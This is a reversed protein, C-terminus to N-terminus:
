LAHPFNGTNGFRDHFVAHPRDSFDGSSALAHMPKRRDPTVVFDIRSKDIGQERLLHRGCRISFEAGFTPSRKLSRLLRGGMRLATLIWADVKSPANVFGRIVLSTTATVAANSVLVSARRLSTWPSDAAITSCRLRAFPRYLSPREATSPLGPRSPSYRVRSRAACSRM